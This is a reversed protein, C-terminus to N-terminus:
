WEEMLRNINQQKINRRIYLPLTAQFIVDSELNSVEFKGPKLDAPIESNDLPIICGCLCHAEWCGDHQLEMQNFVGCHPCLKHLKM